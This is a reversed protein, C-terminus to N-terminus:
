CTLPLSALSGVSYIHETLIPRVGLSAFEDLAAEGAKIRGAAVADVVVSVEFGLSRLSLISKRVCGETAVGFAIFHCPRLSNILELAAPNSGISFSPKEVLIVREEGVTRSSINSDRELREAGCNKIVRDPILNTEQIRQWGESGAICHPPFGFTSFEPDDVTHTDATQVILIGRILAFELLRHLNGVIHRSEELYLKGHPMMFDIQTDIDLFVLRSEQSDLERDIFHYLDM